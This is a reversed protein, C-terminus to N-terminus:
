TDDSTFPRPPMNLTYFLRSVYDDKQMKITNILTM